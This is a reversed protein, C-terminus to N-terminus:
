SSFQALTSLLLDLEEKSLSLLFAPKIEAQYLEALTGLHAPDIKELLDPLGTERIFCNWDFGERHLSCIRNTQPLIIDILKPRHVLLTPSIGAHWLSIIVKLYNRGKGEKTSPHNEVIELLEAVGEEKVCSIWDTNNTIRSLYVDWLSRELVVNLVTTEISALDKMSIGQEWLNVISRFYPGCMKSLVKPLSEERIFARWDIGRQKLEIIDEAYKLLTRLTNREMAALENLEFTNTECLLRITRQHKLGVEDLIKWLDDEEGIFAKWDMGLKQLQTTLSYYQLVKQLSAHELSLLDKPPIGNEWLRVVADFDKAGIKTLLESLGEEESFSIWRTVPKESPIVFGTLDDLVNADGLRRSERRLIRDVLPKEMSALAKPPIGEQSLLIIAACDLPDTRKLLPLMLEKEAYLRWDVRLKKLLIVQDPYELINDLVDKPLSTLDKPYIHSHTLQIIAKCKSPDTRALLELFGEIGAYHLWNDIEGKLQILQDPYQLFVALKDQAVHILDRPSIANGWLHVISPFNTVGTGTLFIRLVSGRAFEAPIVDRLVRLLLKTDISLLDKPAIGIEHLQAISEFHRPPVKEFLQPLEEMRATSTWDVGSDHLRLLQQPHKLLKNLIAPPVSNAMEWSFGKQRLTEITGFHKTHVTTLLQLWGEEAVYPRIDRRQQQLCIIQKPYRLYMELIKSPAHVLEALPVDHQQLEIITAFHEIGIREILRFLPDEKFVSELSRDGTKLNATHLAKHLARESLSALNRLPVGAQSLTIIAALHAANTRELLTLLAPEELVDRWGSGTTELDIIRLASQVIAQQIALPYSIFEQFSIGAKNLLAIPEIYSVDQIDIDVLDQLPVGEKWLSIISAFDRPHTKELLTLLAPETLIDRWAAGKTELDTIPLASQVIAQQIPLPYSTLERFSIGAKHLGIITHIDSLRCTSQSFLSDPLFLDSFPIGEEVARAIGRAEHLIFPILSLPCGALDDQTVGKKALIDMEEPFWSCLHDLVSPETSSAAQPLKIPLNPICARECTGELQYIRLIPTHFQLHSNFIHHYIKKVAKSWKKDLKELGYNPDYFYTASGKKVLIASHGHEEGKANDAPLISRLFFVGDPLTLMIERFTALSCDDELDISPSAYSITQGYLSVIAEAKDKLFDSSEEGQKELTNLAAQAACFEYFSGFHFQIFSMLSDEEEFAQTFALVLYRMAFNMSLATCAGDHLFPSLKEPHFSTSAPARANLRECIDTTLPSDVYDHSLQQNSRWAQKSYRLRLLVSYERRLLAILFPSSSTKYLAQILSFVQRRKEESAMSSLLGKRDDLYFQWAAKEEPTGMAMDHMFSREITVHAVDDSSPPQQLTIVSNEGHSHSSDWLDFAPIQLLSALGPEQPKAQIIHDGGAWVVYKGTAGRQRDNQIIRLADYNMQIIRTHGWSYDWAPNERTKKYEESTFFFNSPTELYQMSSVSFLSYPYTRRTDIPVIRIGADHAAQLVCTNSAERVLNQGSDILDLYARFVAPIPTGPPSRNYAEWKKLNPGYFLFEVYLTTVGQELLFSMHEMLFRKPSLDIHSEGICIGEYTSLTKQLIEREIAALSGDPPISQSLPLMGDEPILEKPLPVPPSTVKSFYSTAENSRRILAGPSRRSDEHFRCGELMKSINGFYRGDLEELEVDLRLCICGEVDQVADEEMGCIPSLLQTVQEKKDSPVILVAYPTDLDFDPLPPLLTKAAVQIIKETMPGQTSPSPIPTTSSEKKRPKVYSFHPIPPKKVRNPTSGESSLARKTIAATGDEAKLKQSTVRRGLMGRRSQRLDSLSLTVEEKDLRCSKSTSPTITSM